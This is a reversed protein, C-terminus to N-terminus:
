SIRASVQCRWRGSHRTEGIEQWGLWHERAGVKFAKPLWGPLAAWEGGPLETAHRLARLVIGDLRETM